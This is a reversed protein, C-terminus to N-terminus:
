NNIINARFVRADADADRFHYNFLASFNDSPEWLLQIRGATEGYGGLEDEKEFGPAKNDIWDDRDQQLLSVRASLTDTLGGGM